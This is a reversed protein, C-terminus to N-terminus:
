RSCQQCDATRVPLSEPVVGCFMRWASTTVDGPMDHMYPIYTHKRPKPPLVLVAVLTGWKKVLLVTIDNGNTCAGNFLM